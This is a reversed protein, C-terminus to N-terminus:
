LFKYLLNFFKKKNTVKILLRKYQIYFSFFLFYFYSYGYTYKKNKLLKKNKYVHKYSKICLKNYFKFFGFVDNNNNFYKIMKNNKRKNYINYKNLYTFQVKSYKKLFRFLFLRRFFFSVLININYKFKNVRKKSFLFFFTRHLNSLFFSEYNHYDFFCPKRYNKNFFHRARYVFQNFFFSNIVSLFYSFYFKSSLLGSLRDFCFFFLDTEIFVFSDFFRTILYNSTPMKLAYFVGILYDNVRYDLWLINSYLQTDMWSVSWSFSGRITNLNSRRSM